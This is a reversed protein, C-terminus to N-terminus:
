DKRTIQRSLRLTLAGREYADADIDEGLVITPLPQTLCMPIVSECPPRIDDAGARRVTHHHEDGCFPCCYTAAEKAWEVALEPPAKRKVVPATVAQRIGALFTRIAGILEVEFPVETGQGDEAKDNFHFLRTEGIETAHIWARSPGFETEFWVEGIAYGPTPRVLFILDTVTIHKPDGALPAAPFDIPKM